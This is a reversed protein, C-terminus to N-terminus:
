IMMEIYHITERQKCADLNDFDASLSCPNVAAIAFLPLTESCALGTGLGCRAHGTGSVLLSSCFIRHCRRHSSQRGDGEVRFCRVGNAVSRSGPAAPLPVKDLIAAREKSLIKALTVLTAAADLEEGFRLVPARPAPRMTHAREGRSPISPGARPLKRRLDRNLFLLYM